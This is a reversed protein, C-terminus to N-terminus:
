VTKVVIKRPKAKEAKPLELRLVGDSLKGEIKSQDVTDALTFQRYYSGWEFERMVAAESQGEPSAVDGRITLIDDRLDITLQDSTVGPLDAVLTIGDASEFIDVSPQFVAGEKTQETDVSLEQKKSPQLEQEKTM